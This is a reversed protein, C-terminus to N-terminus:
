LRLSALRALLTQVALALRVLLLRHFFKVPSLTLLARQLVAAVAVLRLTQHPTPVAAVVAVAM